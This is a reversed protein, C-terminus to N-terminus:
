HVGGGTTPTARREVAVHVTLKANNALGRM